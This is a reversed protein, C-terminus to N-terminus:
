QMEIGDHPSPVHSGITLSSQTEHGVSQVHGVPSRHKPAIHQWGFQAPLAHPLSPQPPVHPEHLV